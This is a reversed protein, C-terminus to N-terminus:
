QSTQAATQKVLLVQVEKPFFAQFIAKKKKKKVIHEIVVNYESLM